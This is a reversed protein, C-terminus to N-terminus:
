QPTCACKYENMYTRIQVMNISTNTLCLYKHKSTPMKCTVIYRYTHTHIIFSHAHAVNYKHAHALIHTDTHTHAEQIHLQMQTFVHSQRHKCTHTVPCAMHMCMQM